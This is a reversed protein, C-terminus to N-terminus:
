AFQVSETLALGKGFISRLGLNCQHHKLKQRLRSLTVDIREYDTSAVGPFMRTFLVEKAVVTGEAQVLCALLSMENATLAIPTITPATTTGRAAQLQSRTVDLTWRAAVQKKTGNRAMRQWLADIAERERRLAEGLQAEIQIRHTINSAVWLVAEEGEVLFHLAQVRGEFWIPDSPGEADLGLVDYRALGYEVIHLDGSALATGIEALFWDAKEPKLAEHLRKGVLGSGDHYYRADTGGFVAAYLGSRTLIFVPDPFAALITHLYQSPLHRQM